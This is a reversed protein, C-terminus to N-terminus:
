QVLVITAPLCTDNLETATGGGPLLLRKTQRAVSLIV